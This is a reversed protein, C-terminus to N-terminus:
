CLAPCNRINWGGTEINEQRTWVHNPDSVKDSLDHHFKEAFLDGQAGARGYWRMGEVRDEAITKAGFFYLNGLIRQAKADGRNALVRIANERATYDSCMAATQALTLAVTASQQNPAAISLAAALEASKRAACTDAINQLTEKRWRQLADKRLDLTAQQECDWQKKNLLKEVDWEAQTRKNSTKKRIAELAIKEVDTLKCKADVWDRLSPIFGRFDNDFDDESLWLIQDKPVSFMQDIYKTPVDMEKLYNEVTARTLDAAAIAQGGTLEKLQESAVYPRHIGLIPPLAGLATDKYIGGVFVFFCASACMFNDRPNGLDYRKIENEHLSSGAASNDTRTPVMAAWGLARVLRGIKMAEVVDGGPSALYIGEPCGSGDEYIKSCWPPDSFLGYYDRKVVLFDRLKDYDGPEIKGELVVTQGMTFEAARAPGVFCIISVVVVLECFISFFTRARIPHHLFQRNFM